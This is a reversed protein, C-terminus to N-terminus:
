VCFAIQGCLLFSCCRAILFKECCKVERYKLYNKEASLASCDLHFLADDVM